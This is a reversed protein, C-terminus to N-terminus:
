ETEKSNHRNHTIYYRLSIAEITYVATHKHGSFPMNYGDIYNGLCWTYQFNAGLVIRKTIYFNYGANFPLYPVVSHTKIVPKGTEPNIKATTSNLSTIRLIDNNIAGFGFGFYLNDAITTIVNHYNSYNKNCASIIGGITVKLHLDFSTFQNYSSLNYMPYSSELGGSSVTAGYSFGPGDNKEFFLFYANQPTSLPLQAYLKTLGIGAGASWDHSNNSRAVEDSSNDIEDSNTNSRMQAFSPLYFFLCVSLITIIRNKM